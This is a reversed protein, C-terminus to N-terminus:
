EHKAGENSRRRSTVQDSANMEIDIITMMCVNGYNRHDHLHGATLTDIMAGRCLANILRPHDLNVNHIISTM